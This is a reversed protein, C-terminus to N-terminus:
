SMKSAMASSAPRPSGESATVSESHSSRLPDGLFGASEDVEGAQHAVRRAGGVHAGVGIGHALARRQTAQDADAALDGRAGVIGFAAIRALEDVFGLPAHELDGLAAVLRAAAEDRQLVLEARDDISEVQQM